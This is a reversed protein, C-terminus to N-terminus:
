KMRGNPYVNRTYFRHSMILILTYLKVFLLLNIFSYNNTLHHCAIFVPKIESEPIEKNETLENFVRQFRLSIM